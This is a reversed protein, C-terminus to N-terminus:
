AKQIRATLYIAAGIFSVFFGIPWGTLYGLTLSAWINLLSFILSLLLFNKPDNTFYISAASPTILLGFCLLSGIIPVMIATALAVAVLFLNEILKIPVGRTKALEPSISDLLLPRFVFIILALCIVSVFATTFMQNNSVGLIQGFLLSYAGEAYQKSLGLFLAGTGLTVILVLSTAVENTEKNALIGISVAGILSFLVLGWEPNVSLLIAGAGGAFGIEPLVHAPFSASRVIIFFGIFSSLIAIITGSIWAHVMFPQSFIEFNMVNNLM